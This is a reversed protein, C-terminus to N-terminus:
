MNALITFDANHTNAIVIGTNRSSGWVAAPSPPHCNVTVAINPPSSNPIPAPM